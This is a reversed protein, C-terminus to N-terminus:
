PSSNGNFRGLVSSFVDAGPNVPAQFLAPTSEVFDTPELGKHPTSITTVSAVLSPMVAVAYRSTLGGQSYGIFNVKTIGTAALM